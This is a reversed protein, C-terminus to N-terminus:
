LKPKWILSCTFWIHFLSRFNNMNLFLFVLHYLIIFIFSLSDWKEMFCLIIMYFRGCAITAVQCLNKQNQILCILVHFIFGYIDSGRNKYVKFNVPTWNQSFNKVHWVVKKRDETVKWSKVQRRSACNVKGIVLEIWKSERREVNLAICHSVCFIWAHQKQTILM